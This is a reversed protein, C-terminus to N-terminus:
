RLVRERLLRLLCVASVAGLVAWLLASASVGALFSGHAAILGLLLSGGVAAAISLGIERGNEIKLVIATLWGLLAGVVILIMLGM